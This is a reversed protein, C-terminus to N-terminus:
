KLPSLFNKFFAPVFYGKLKNQTHVNLAQFKQTHEWM